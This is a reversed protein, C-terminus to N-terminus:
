CCPSDERAALELARSLLPSVVPSGLKREDSRFSTSSADLVSRVLECPGDAGVETAGVSWAVGPGDDGDIEGAEELLEEGRRLDVVGVGNERLRGIEGSCSLEGASGEDGGKEGSTDKESLRAVEGVVSSGGVGCRAGPRGRERM